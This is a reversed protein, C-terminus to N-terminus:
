FRIDSMALLRPILGDAASMNGTKLLYKITSESYFESGTVHRAILGICSQPISLAPAIVMSEFEKEFENLSTISLLLAWPGDSQESTIPSDARGMGLASLLSLTPFACPQVKYTVTFEAEGSQAEKSITSTNASVLFLEDNWVFSKLDCNSPLVSGDDQTSSSAQLTGYRTDYVNLGKGSLFAVYESMHSIACLSFSESSAITIECGIDCSYGGSTEQRYFRVIM